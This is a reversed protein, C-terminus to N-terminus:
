CFFLLRSLCALCQVWTNLKSCKKVHSLSGSVLFYKYLKSIHYLFRISFIFHSSLSVLLSTKSRIPSFPVSRFLTWCIHLFVLQVPKLESLFNGEEHHWVSSPLLPLQFFLFLEKIIQSVSSSILLYLFFSFDFFISVM